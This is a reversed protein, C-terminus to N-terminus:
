ENSIKEMQADWEGPSIKNQNSNEQNLKDTAKQLLNGTIQSVKLYYM